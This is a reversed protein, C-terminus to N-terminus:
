RRHCLCQCGPMSCEPHRKLEKCVASIINPWRSNTQTDSWPESATNDPKHITVAM